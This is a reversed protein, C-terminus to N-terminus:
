LDAMDRALAIYESLLSKSSIWTFELGCKSLGEEGPSVWKVKALTTLNDEPQLFLKVVLEDGEQIIESMKACIGGLSINLTTTISRVSALGAAKMYEAKLAVGFREFRRREIM